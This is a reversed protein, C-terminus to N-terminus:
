DDSSGREAMPGLRTRLALLGRSAHSKVTGNSLGLTRAVDDEAFDGLYRLVVVERQRRPLATLARVLDVREDAHADVLVAREVEEASLRAKRRIADIALNTAVRVVWPEAYESVKRWRVLARTLSEQAVDEAEGQDGLLRYAARYARAFLRPYADDFVVRAAGM